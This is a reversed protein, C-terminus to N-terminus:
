RMSLPWLCHSASTIATTFMETRWLSWTRMEWWRCIWFDPTNTLSTLVNYYRLVIYWSSVHHHNYYKIGSSTSISCLVKRKTVPRLIHVQYIRAPMKEVFLGKKEGKKVLRTLLSLRDNNARPPRPSSQPSIEPSSPASRLNLMIFMLLHTWTWVIICSSSALECPSIRQRRGWSASEVRKPCSPPTRTVSASTSCCTPTGTAGGCM